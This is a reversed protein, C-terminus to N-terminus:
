GYRVSPEHVMGASSQFPDHVEFLALSAFDRANRTYFQQVGLGNLTYALRWDFLARRSWLSDSGHIAASVAWRPHRRFQQCIDAAAISDLPNAIVAPQRLLVYLEALVLESLIVDHRQANADLLARATTHEICASNLAYLLVNTDFSIV